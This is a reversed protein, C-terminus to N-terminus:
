ILAPRKGIKVRVFLWSAFSASIIVVREYINYHLKPEAGTYYRYGAIGILFLEWGVWWM